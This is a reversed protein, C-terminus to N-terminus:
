NLEEGKDLMRKVKDELRQYIEQKAPDFSYMKVYEDFAWFFLERDRVKHEKNWTDYLRGFAMVKMGDHNHGKGFKVIETIKNLEYGTLHDTQEPTEKTITSVPEPAKQSGQEKNFTVTNESGSQGAIMAAPYGIIGAPIALVVIIFIGPNMELRCTVLGVALAGGLLALISIVSERASQSKKGGISAVVIALVFCIIYLVIFQWIEMSAFIQTIREM